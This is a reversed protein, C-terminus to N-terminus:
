PNLEVHSDADLVLVGATAANGIAAVRTGGIVVLSKDAPNPAPPRIPVPAFVGTPLLAESTLVDGLVEHILSVNDISEQVTAKSTDLGLVKQDLLKLAERPDGSAATLLAGVQTKVASPEPEHLTVQDVLRKLATTPDTEAGATHGYLTRAGVTSSVGTPLNAAIASRVADNLLASSLGGGASAALPGRAARVAGGEADLPEATPPGLDALLDAFTDSALNKRRDLTGVLKRADIPVNLRGGGVDITLKVGGTPPTAVSPPVLVQHV